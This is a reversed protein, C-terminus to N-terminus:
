VCKNSNIFSFRRYTTDDDDSLLIVLLWIIFFIYRLSWYDRVVASFLQISFDDNHMNFRYACTYHVYVSSKNAVMPSNHVYTYCIASGFHKGFIQFFFFWCVWIKKFLNAAKWAFKNHKKGRQYFIHLRNLPKQESQFNIKFMTTCRVLSALKM